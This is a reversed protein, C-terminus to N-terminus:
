FNKQLQEVVLLPPDTPLGASRVNAAAPQAATALAPVTKLL